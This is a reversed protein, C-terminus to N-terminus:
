AYWGIAVIRFNGYTILIRNSCPPEISDPGWSRSVWLRDFKRGSVSTLHLLQSDFSTSLM